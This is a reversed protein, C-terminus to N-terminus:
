QTRLPLVAAQLREAKADLLGAFASAAMRGRIEYSHRADDFLHTYTDLTITIRSHGM